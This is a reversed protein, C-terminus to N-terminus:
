SSANRFAQVLMYAVFALGLLVGAAITGGFYWGPGMWYTGILAAVGLGALMLAIWLFLAALKSM